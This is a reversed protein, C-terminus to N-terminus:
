LYGLAKLSSKTEEDMEEKEFSAEGFARCEDLRRELLAAMKERAPASGPDEVLNTEEWPDKELDYLEEGAKSARMFKLNGAVVAKFRQAWDRM